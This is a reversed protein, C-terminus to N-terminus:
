DGQIRDSLEAGPVLYTNADVRKGTRYHESINATYEFTTGVARNLQTDSLRRVRLVRTM